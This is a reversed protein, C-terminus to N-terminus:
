QYWTIKLNPIYKQQFAIDCVKESGGKIYKNTLKFSNNNNDDDDDDSGDPM